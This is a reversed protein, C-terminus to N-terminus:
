HDGGKRVVLTAMGLGHRIALESCGDGADDVSDGAREIDTAIQERQAKLARQVEAQVYTDIHPMLADTVAEAHANTVIPDDPLADQLEGILEDRTTV